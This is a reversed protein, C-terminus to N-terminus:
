GVKEEQLYSKIRAFHGLLFIDLSGVKKGKYIAGHAQSCDEILFIKNKKTFKLIPDLDCALGNLHVLIIAKVNKNYAKKIGEISLNGNDDVDAFIPKLGM